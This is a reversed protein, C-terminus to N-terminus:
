HFKRHGHGSEGFREFTDIAVNVLLQVKTGHRRRLLRNEESQQAQFDGTGSCRDVVSSLATGDSRSTPRYGVLSKLNENSRGLM